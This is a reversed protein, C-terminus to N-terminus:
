EAEKYLNTSPMYNNVLCIPNRNTEIELIIIIDSGKECVKVCSNIEKRWFVCVGGYGRILNYDM